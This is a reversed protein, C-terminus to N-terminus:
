AHVGHGRAIKRPQSDLSRALAADVEVNVVSVNVGNRRQKLIDGALPAVAGSKGFADFASGRL